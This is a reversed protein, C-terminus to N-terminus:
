FGAEVALDIPGLTGLYFALSHDVDRVGLDIRDVGRIAM